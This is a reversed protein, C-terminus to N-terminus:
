YEEKSAEQKETIVKNRGAGASHKRQIPELIKIHSM